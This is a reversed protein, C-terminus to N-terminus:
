RRLEYHQSIEYNQKSFYLLLYCTTAYNLENGNMCKLIYDRPYGFEVAQSLISDDIPIHENLIQQQLLKNFAEDKATDVLLSEASEDEMIKMGLHQKGPSEQKLEKPSSMISNQLSEKNEEKINIINQHQNIIFMQNPNSNETVVNGGGYDAERESIAYDHTQQNLLGMSLQVDDAKEKEEQNHIMNELKELDMKDANGCKKKQGQRKLEELIEKEEQDM